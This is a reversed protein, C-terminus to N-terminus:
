VGTLVFFPNLLRFVYIIFRLSVKFDLFIRIGQFSISIFITLHLVLLVVHHCHLTIHGVEVGDNVISM